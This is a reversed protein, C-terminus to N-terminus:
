ELIEAIRASMTRDSKTSATQRWEQKSMTAAAEAIEKEYM